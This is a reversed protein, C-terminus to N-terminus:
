SIGATKDLAGKVTSDVSTYGDASIAFAQVTITFKPLGTVYVSDSLSSLLSSASTAGVSFKYEGTHGADTTTAIDNIKVYDFLRTTYKGQPLKGANGNNGTGDGGKYYFMTGNTNMDWDNSNYGETATGSANKHYLKAMQSEFQSKTYYYSTNNLVIEYTVKIAVYEDLATESTNAVKPNKEIEQKVVYNRAKEQGSNGDTPIDDSGTGTTNNDGTGKTGNWRIETLEAKIEGSTFENTVGTIPTQAVDLAAWTIAVATASVMALTVVLLFANRIKRGM